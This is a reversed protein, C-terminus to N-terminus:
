GIQIPDEAGPLHTSPDYSVTAQKRSHDVPVAEPHAKERSPRTDSLDIREGGGLRDARAM